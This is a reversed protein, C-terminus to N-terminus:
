QLPCGEVLPVVASCLEAIERISCERDHGLARVPLRGEKSRRSPLYTRAISANAGGSFLLEYIARWTRSARQFAHCDAGHGRPQGGNAQGRSSSARNKERRFAM